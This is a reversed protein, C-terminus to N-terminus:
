FKKGRFAFSLVPFGGNQSFNLAFSFHHTGTKKQRFYGSTQFFIVVEQGVLM